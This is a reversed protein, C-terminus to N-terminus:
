YLKYMMVILSDRHTCYEFSKIIKLTRTIIKLVRFSFLFLDDKNFNSFLDFVFLTLEEMMRYVGLFLYFLDDSSINKAPNM